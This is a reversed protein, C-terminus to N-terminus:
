QLIFAKCRFNSRILAPYRLLSGTHQFHASRVSCIQKSLSFCHPRQNTEMVQSLAVTCCGLYTYMCATSDSHDVYVFRLYQVSSKLSLFDWQQFSFLKFSFVCNLNTQCLLVHLMKYRNALEQLCAEYLLLAFAVNHQSVMPGPMRTSTVQCAGGVWVGSCVLCVGKRCRCEVIATSQVAPCHVGGLLQEPIALSHWLSTLAEIQGGFKSTGFRVLCWHFM